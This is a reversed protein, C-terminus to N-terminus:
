ETSLERNLCGIWFFHSVSKCMEKEALGASLILVKHSQEDM